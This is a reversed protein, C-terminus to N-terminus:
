EAVKQAEAATIREERTLNKLAQDHAHSAALKDMHGRMKQESESLPAQKARGSAVLKRFEVTYAVKDRVVSTGKKYFKGDLKSDKNFIVKM